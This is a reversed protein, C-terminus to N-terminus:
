AFGLYPQVPGTVAFRGSNHGRRGDVSLQSYHDRLGRVTGSDVHIEMLKPVQRTVWETAIADDLAVVEEKKDLMDRRAASCLIGQDPQPAQVFAIRRPSRM